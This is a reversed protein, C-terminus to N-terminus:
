KAERDLLARKRELGWRYGSLSGDGRIVRHCPVLVAVPNAAIAGAVARVADPRGIRSAIEAYSATEGPRIQRLADWVLRQFGTGRLDLPGEFTGDTADLHAVVRAIVPSMAEEAETLSAGPFRAALDQRLATPDDALLVACIGRDSRATLVWGLSSEGLAFEISGPLVRSERTPRPNASSKKGTIGSM